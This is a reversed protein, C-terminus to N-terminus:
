RHRDSGCRKNNSRNRFGSRREIGSISTSKQKSTAFFDNVVDLVFVAGVADRLDRGESREFRFCRDSVDTASKPQGVCFGIADGLHERASVPIRNEAVSAISISGRSRSIIFVVALFFQEVM